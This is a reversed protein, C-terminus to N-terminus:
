TTLDGVLMWVDQRIHKLTCASFEDNLKLGNKSYMTVGSGTEFLFNGSGSQFFEYENGVNNPVISSTQISCTLNGAVEFFYGANQNSATIDTTVSASIPRQLNILTDGSGVFSGNRLIFNGM